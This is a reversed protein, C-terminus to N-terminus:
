VSYWGWTAVGAFALAFLAWAWRRWAAVPSGDPRVAVLGLVLGLALGGLHGAADIFPLVATLVLNLALFVWLVPGLLRRDDPSLRSRLRLGIVATAGLLGFAGGSAGDSWPVRGLQSATTGALACALFWGLWRWNGVRGELLHGLVLLAIANVALHLADGHLLPSTFLRWVEGQDVALDMRGGVAVRFRVDRDLLLAALLGSRGIWWQWLGTVAHVVVILGALGASAWECQSPSSESCPM